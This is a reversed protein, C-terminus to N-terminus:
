SDRNTSGNNTDGKENPTNNPKNLQQEPPAYFDQPKGRNRRINVEINLGFKANIQKVAEKRTELMCQIYGYEIQENNANVEDVLLRERKENDANNYGLLTLVENWLNTKYLTLKDIIYPVNANLVEIGDTNFTEDVFIAPTATDKQKFFNKMALVQKETGKFVTPVKALQLQMDIADQVECYKQTYWLMDIYTPSMDLNNRIYVANDETVFENFQYGIIQWATPEYYLNLDGVFACPLVAYSFTKNGKAFCATGYSFLVREIQRSELPEPLNKWEFSDIALNYLRRFIMTRMYLKERESLKDNKGYYCGSFLYNNFTIM